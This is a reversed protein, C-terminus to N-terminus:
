AQGEKLIGVVPLSMPSLQKTTLSEPQIDFVQSIASTIAPTVRQPLALYWKDPATLKLQGVAYDISRQLELLLNDFVFQDASMSEDDLAQFGRITRSFHWQRQHIFTLTLEQGPIKHLLLGRVEPEFINAIALEDVGITVIECLPSVAQVLSAIRERESSYVAIREQGAPGLPLDIYDFMLNAVPVEVLDRMCFPLAQALDEDPMAPKEIQTQKYWHRNLAIFLRRGQWQQEDIFAKLAMIITEGKNIDRERVDLPAHEDIAILHTSTIYLGVASATRRPKLWNPVLEM